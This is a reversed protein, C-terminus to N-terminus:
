VVRAAQQSVKDCEKVCRSAAAHKIRGMEGGARACVISYLVSVCCEIPRYFGESKAKTAIEATSALEGQARLALSGVATSDGDIISV